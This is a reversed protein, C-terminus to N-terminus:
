SRDMNRWSLHLRLDAIVTDQGDLRFMRFKRDRTPVTTSFAAKSERDLGGRDVGLWRRETAPDVTGSYSKSLTRISYITLTRTSNHHLTGGAM